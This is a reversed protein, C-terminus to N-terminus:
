RHARRKANARNKHRKKHAPACRSKGAKRVKRKGAPCRSSPPRSVVNGQGSYSSSNPTPDNPATVAPQCAEGLCEGASQASSPFGGGVRADYVSPTEDTDEPTLLDATLVFVDDGSKSIGFIHNDRTSQGSSILFICGDPEACSGKGQAEWEYVDILGDNDAAVLREPTEFFARSGDPSLNPIM